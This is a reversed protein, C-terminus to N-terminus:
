YIYLSINMSILKLLEVTSVTSIKLHLFTYLALLLLLSVAKHARTCLILPKAIRGSQLVGQDDTPLPVNCTKCPTAAEYHMHNLWVSWRVNNKGKDLDVSPM